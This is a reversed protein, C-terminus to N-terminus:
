IVGQSLRLPQSPTFCWIVQKSAHKYTFITYVSIQVADSLVGGHDGGESLVGGHDGGGGPGEGEPLEQICPVNSYQM